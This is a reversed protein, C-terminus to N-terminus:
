ARGTVERLFAHQSAMARAGLATPFAPFGHISEPYVELRTPNGAAEWRAAMFLSDDLLPDLDGVVFFGPCLSSLDAYLPSWHPDRRAEVDTGPLAQDIFWDVIPGSLILNRDGWNRMSPTRGLDYAGFILNAAAIAPDLRGDNEDRLVLLSVAALHAGASEGGIVVTADRATAAAPVLEALGRELLWRAAVLCDDIADDLHHEPALRYEVSVVVLGTDDATAQLREDQQDAGGLVWGGGHLHLYVGHAEGSPRLIRVDVDAGAHSVTRAEAGELRVAVPFAGAGQERVRRAEPASLTHIAPEAALAAEIFENVGRSEALEEPSAEVRVFSTQM